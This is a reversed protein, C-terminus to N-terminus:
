QGNYLKEESLIVGAATCLAIFIWVWQSFAVSAFLGAVLWVFFAFRIASESRVDTWALALIVVFVLFGIVGLETLLQLYANHAVVASGNWGFGGGPAYDLKVIPFNGIGVGRIFHDKIMYMGAIYLKARQIVSSDDDARVGWIDVGILSGFRTLFVEPIFPTALLLLVIMGAVITIKRSHKFFVIFLLIVLAIMGGRSSTVVVGALLLISLIGFLLRSLVSKYRIFLYGVFSLLSVWLAALRNIHAYSFSKIRGKIIAGFLYEGIGIAATLAGILLLALIIQTLKKRSDVLQVILFFLISARFFGWAKEAAVLIDRAWFMSLLIIIWFAGFWVLTRQARLNRQGLIIEKMVILLLFGELLTAVSMWPLGPTRPIQKTFPLLALVVLLGWFPKRVAAILLLLTAPVVFVLKISILGLLLLIVCLLGICLCQKMRSQKQWSTKIQQFGGMSWKM